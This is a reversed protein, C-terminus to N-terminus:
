IVGLEKEESVKKGDSAVIRPDHRYVYIKAWFTYNLLSVLGIVCLLWYFRDLHSKNLNAGEMWGTKGNRDRTVKNVLEILFSGMWASLGHMSYFISTGISKMGIPAESYFFELLGVFSTVDIIGVLFFQIVLWFVSMPVGTGVDMLGHEEALKKRKMEVVAAVCTAMTAFAFGIGIRQLHTIGGKYGTLKRLYPVIFRDYIVLISMQFVVPIVDLTAPSIKIKGLRNDMTAGQQVSLTLILSFPLYGFVSSIFIPVLRILMKTEEIQNTSCYSWAGKEGNDISAKDLFKLGKTRSLEEVSSADKDVYQHPEEKSYEPFPLSRKKYAVLFVQFVRTLPSGDPIRNRYFPLGCTVIALGAFVLLACVSFGVDWGRNNEIWVVVTLGTFAGLSVAFTYWNFYSIKDRMEKSDDNDFQDGGLSAISARLGGDAFTILYLSFFFLAANSGHVEECNNPIRNIDCPSPHLSPLHAQIALLGYGLIELPGFILITNFRKIYSDSIFAGVLSFMSIAGIFNTVTTSASAVGMHLTGRLYNVLNLMNAINAMNSLWVLSHLFLTAKVGGHKTKDVPDGRWSVLGQVTM